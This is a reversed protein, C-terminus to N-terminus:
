DLVEEKTVVYVYEDDTYNKIIYVIDNNEIDEYTPIVLSYEGDPYNTFDNNLYEEYSPIFEPCEEHGNDCEEKVKLMMEDITDYEGILEPEADPILDQYYLYM